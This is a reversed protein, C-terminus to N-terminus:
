RNGRAGAPAEQRRKAFATGVANRVIPDSRITNQVLWEQLAGRLEKMGPEDHAFPSIDLGLLRAAEMDMNRVAVTLRDLQRQQVAEKNGSSKSIPDRLLPGLQAFAIFATLTIKRALSIVQFPLYPPRGSIVNVVPDIVKPIITPLEPRTVVHLELTCVAAFTIWRWYKGWELYGFFSMLLMFLGVSVYYPAIRYLGKFVYERITTCDQWKLMETGFRDYAFRKAPDSLTDRAAKLKVFLAESAAEAEPTTAKDPHHLVTRHAILLPSHTPFLHEYLRRFRSQIAREEAGPSVGLSSYYDGDRRLQWDAEYVTFLLYLTIVLIQIRRRHKVYQPSGPTPRPEGARITIGYYASQVWGAITNPLFSWGILSLLQSSM